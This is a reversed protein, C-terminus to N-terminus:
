EATRGEGESCDGGTWDGDETGESLLALGRWILLFHDKEDAKFRRSLVLSEDGALEGPRGSSIDVGQDSTCWGDDSSPERVLVVGTAEVREAGIGFGPCFLRRVGDEMGKKRRVEDDDMGFDSVAIDGGVNGAGAAGRLAWDLETRFDTKPIDIGDMSRPLEFRWTDCCVRGSSDTAITSIGASIGCDALVPQVPLFRPL